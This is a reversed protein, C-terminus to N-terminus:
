CDNSAAAIDLGKINAEVQVWVRIGLCGGGARIVRYPTVDRDDLGNRGCWSRRVGVNCFENFGDRGGGFRIQLSPFPLLQHPCSRPRLDLVSARSFIYRSLLDDLLDRGPINNQHMPGNVRM